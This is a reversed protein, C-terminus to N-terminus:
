LPEIDLPAIVEVAEVIARREKERQRNLDSVQRQAQM